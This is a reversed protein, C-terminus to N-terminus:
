RMTISLARNDLGSQSRRDRDGSDTTVIAPIRLWMIVRRAMQSCKLPPQLCPATLAGALQHEPDTISVTNAVSATCRRFDHMCSRASIQTVIGMLCSPLGDIHPM